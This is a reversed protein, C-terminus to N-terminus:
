AQTEVIESLVYGTEGTMGERAIVPPSELRRRLSRVAGPDM